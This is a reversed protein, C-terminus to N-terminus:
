SSCDSERTGLFGITEPATRAGPRGLALVTVRPFDGIWMLGPSSCGQPPPRFEFAVDFDYTEGPELRERVRFVADISGKRAWPKGELRTVQVAAGGEPGMYPLRVRTVQVAFRSDNAVRVPLTCSMGDRLRIAQIRENRVGPRSLRVTTGTCTVPGGWTVSVDRRADAAVVRWGVMASLALVIVAVALVLLVRRLGGRALGNGTTETM